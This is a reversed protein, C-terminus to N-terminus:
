KDENNQLPEEEDESESESEEQLPRNPNRTIPIEDDSDDSDEESDESESHIPRNPNRITQIEDDSSYEEDSNGDYNHNDNQKREQKERVEKECSEIYENQVKIVGEGNEAAAYGDLLERNLNIFTEGWKFKALLNSADQKLGVIYMTAALAEVCSLKMPRGYNVPNAALLFPLLRPYGMRMKHFPISDVENWSCDVVCAGYKEVADKDLPSVTQTGNPSLVVGRFPTHLSISKLMNLRELKKGTCRKADCQEFDWMALPIRFDTQIGKKKPESPSHLDRASSPQDDVSYGRYGRNTYHGVASGRKKKPAGTKARKIVISAMTERMMM